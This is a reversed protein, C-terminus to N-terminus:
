NYQGMARDFEGNVLLELADCAADCATRMTKLEDPSFASLVWDAMDWQSSPKAGIGIKIRPFDDRNTCEIISRMGKQGGDSGQRRIRLKGPALSADDFVLICKEPPLKYFQMAERVAEGSLNMFTQPKLVLCRHGALTVDGCLAKFKLRKIPFHHKQALLDVCLFGANHRTTEYKAGPNGLGVILFEPAGQSSSGSITKRRQFFRM